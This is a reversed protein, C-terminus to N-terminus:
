NSAIGSLWYAAIAFANCVNLSNKWGLVPISLIIDAQKLIKEEIGLAENGLILGLPQPVRYDFLSTSAATTELAIIPMNHSKLLAIAAETEQLYQWKLRGATQMATKILKPHPPQPTIGCLLLERAQVCEATRFVSGVNHASRLNDLIVTLPFPVKLDQNATKMGDFRTIEIESDAQSHKHINLLPVILKQLDHPNSSESLRSLIGFEEQLSPKLWALCTLIEPVLVNVYEADVINKELAALLELMAKRQQEAPFGTFKEKSYHHLKVMIRPINGFLINETLYLIGTILNPTHYFSDYEM